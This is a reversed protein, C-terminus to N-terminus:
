MKLDGNEQMKDGVSVTRFGPHFAHPVCIMGHYGLVQSAQRCIM